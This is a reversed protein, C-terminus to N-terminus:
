SKFKPLRMWMPRRRYHRRQRAHARCQRGDFTVNTDQARAGNIQFPNGGGVAFNFDGMTGGGRVGPLLQAMYIPNRGNLEQSQIQTGTVESQVSGSETQLAAATASVEVTETTAGVVLSPDFSLASNADLKVHTSQFKKFGAAEATITYLGPPLNPVTYYGSDNTTVLHEQNTAENKIVVISQPVVGGFPDKVFGGISGYDSQAVAIAAFLICSLITYLRLPIARVQCM